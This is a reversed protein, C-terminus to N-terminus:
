LGKMKLITVAIVLECPATFILYGQVLTTMLLHKLFFPVSLPIIAKLNKIQVRTKLWM